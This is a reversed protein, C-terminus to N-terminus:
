STADLKTKAAAITKPANIGTKGEVIKHHGESPGVFFFYPNTNVNSGPAEQVTPCPRYHVIPSRMAKGANVLTIIRILVGYLHVVMVAEISCCACAPLTHCPLGTSQWLSFSIRRIRQAWKSDISLKCAAVIWLTSQHVLYNLIGHSPPWGLVRGVLCCIQSSHHKCANTTQLM